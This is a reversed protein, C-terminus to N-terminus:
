TQKESKENKYFEGNCHRIILDLDYVDQTFTFKNEREVEKLMARSVILHDIARGLLEKEKM